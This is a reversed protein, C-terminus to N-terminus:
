DLRKWQKKYSKSFYKLFKDGTAYKAINTKYNGSPNQNFDHTALDTGLAIQVDKAYKSKTQRRSVVKLLDLAKEYEKNHNYFGVSYIIFDTYSSRIFDFLPIHSIGFKKVVQAKYYTGASMYEEIASKYNKRKIYNNVANIKKFYNVAPSIYDKKNRAEKTDIECQSYNGAHSFADNFKNDASIFKKATILDLAEQFYDNYANQANICEREFIQGKLESVANNVTNDEGLSYKAVLAKADNYLQRAVTLNNVKVKNKGEDTIYLVLSKASEKIYKSLDLNAKISYNNEIQKAKNYKKLADKYNGSSNKSKGGAILENYISQKIDLILRDEKSDQKLDYKERYAIAKEILREAESNNGSRFIQESDYIYLEYIGTRANFYGRTLEDTCNIEQYTKCIRAAQDYELVANDCSKKLTLQDGREVYRFYMDSIREAIQSNDPIFARSNGAFDLATVIINEAERLNNNRLSIDIDNLIMNYKGNVARSMEVDMNSRCNVEPFDRCIEGARQIISIAEDYRGANNLEGADLLFDNYIGRALEVTQMKTEQDPNMGRIEFVKNVAKDIYGSNYYIRALQFHSPAFMPNVELSKNFYYDAQSPSHRALMEIGREYYIQDLNEIINTCVDRLAEAKNNIKSLKIKLGKPDITNLPLNKYFSKQRVSSVYTVASVASDRLLYIDNFNESHILYERDSNLNNLYRLRNRAILNEDYYKDIFNVKRDFQQKNQQTYDFVKNILRIKYNGGHLTDTVSMNVLTVNNGTISVDNFSYENVLSNGKLRHLAFSTKGPVLTKGIDFERYMKDGSINIDRLKVIFELKNGRRLIQRRQKFSFTLSVNSVPKNYSQAIKTFIRNKINSEGQSYRILFTQTDEKDFIIQSQGFVSSSLLLFIFTLFLINKM